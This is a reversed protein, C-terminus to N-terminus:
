QNFTYWEDCKSCDPSSSKNGKYDNVFLPQREKWIEGLSKERCNWASWVGNVDQKCFGIRGDALIFLDRQLHWCPVRDLPTLDYYRRDEIIGLYANHKQLIIQVKQAEWFDYYADISHETEKIKMLQVYLRDSKEGFLDRLSLINKLIKEFSGNQHMQQYSKSDYGSMDVIVKIRPDNKSKLYILIKEDLAPGDTEIFVTQVFTEALVADLCKIFDPHLLPDGEGGFCLAYPLGFERMDSLIKLFLPLEMDGRSAKVAPRYSYISTIDARGTLEIEVYSPGGYLIECNKELLNRLEAYPPVSGHLRILSEMIKADRPQSARFSIRKDRLDPGKYYLEVDFQNINSRIIQGLSLRKENADPMTRILDCSIIECSLGSPLNESYTFEASYKLHIALMESIIGPDVFPADAYIKIFHDAGSREALQKWSSIDDNSRVFFDERESLSGKYDASVSVFVGNVASVSALATELLSITSKGSLSLQTDSFGDECFFVAAVKM